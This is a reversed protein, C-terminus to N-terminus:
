NGEFFHRPNQVMIQQIDEDSVGLERLRPLVRRTIFLYRDSNRREFQERVEEPWGVFIVFHDHSLMIRHGYGADIIRKVVVTRQEWDPTGPISGGPYRDLGLWVGKRLMGLLYDMDTDDNSHGICVRSLDVGEEELVRIQQEGIREPSWTHTSIPVGTHKQARAVGRLVNEEADTMGGSDSATKIVGARIGTGEIGQEIERIYLRAIDDPSARWFARPISRHSGTSSIIHVGARRSVEELMRIDRGQDFTTMDVYSRLGENYADGFAAVGAEIISQRDIFEPYTQSIGASSVMVHEHSLTFGLDSTDVPGLVTNVTTM